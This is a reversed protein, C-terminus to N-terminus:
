ATMKNMIIIIIVPFINANNIVKVILEQEVQVNIMVIEMINLMNVVYNKKLFQEEQM